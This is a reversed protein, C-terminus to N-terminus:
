SLFALNYDSLGIAYVSPLELFFGWNTSNSRPCPSTMRGDLVHKHIRSPQVADDQSVSQVM